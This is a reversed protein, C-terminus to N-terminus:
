GDDSCENDPNGQGGAEEEIFPKKTRPCHNWEIQQLGAHCPRATKITPQSHRNELSKKDKEIAVLNSIEELAFQALKWTM